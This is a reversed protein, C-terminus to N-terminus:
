KKDKFKRVTKEEFYKKPNFIKWTTMEANQYAGSNLLAKSIKSGIPNSYIYWGITLTLIGVVIKGLTTDFLGTNVDSPDLTPVEEDENDCDQQITVIAEASLTDPDTPVKEPTVVVENLVEGTLASEGVLAEFTLTLTQNSSVTWGNTTNWEIEQTNGVQTTTVYESDEVEVNNIKTTGDQYTFGLPLKDTINEVTDSADGTNTITITFSSVNNPSVREVCAPTTEKAVTFSSKTVTDDTNDTTDDATAFEVTRSISGLDTNNSSVTAEITLNGEVDNLQAFSNNQSYNTSDYLASEIISIVGTSSNITYGDNMTITAANNSFSFDIEPTDDETLNGVTIAIRSIKTKGESDTRTSIDMNSVSKEGSNDVEVLRRCVTSNIQEGDSDLATAVIELSTYDSLDTLTKTITLKDSSVVDPEITQNNITFAHDTYEEDFTATITIEDTSSVQGTVILGNQDKITMANCRVDSLNSVQCIQYLDTDTDSNLLNASLESTSCQAKCDVDSTTTNLNFKFALRPDGCETTVAPDLFYCGCTTTTTNTNDRSSDGIAYFYVAVGILLLGLIGTIILLIRVTKKSKNSTSRRQQQEAM